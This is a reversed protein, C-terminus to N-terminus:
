NYMAAMLNGCLMVLLAYQVKLLFGGPWKVREKERKNKIEWCASSLADIVILSHSM